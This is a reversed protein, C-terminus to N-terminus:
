NGKHLVHGCYGVLVVDCDPELVRELNKRPHLADDFKGDVLLTRRYFNRFAATVTSKHLGLGDEVNLVNGTISIGMRGERVGLPLAGRVVLTSRTHIEGVEARNDLIHVKISPDLQAVLGDLLCFQDRLTLTAPLQAERM